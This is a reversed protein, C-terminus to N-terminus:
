LHNQFIKMSPFRPKSMWWMWIKMIKEITHAIAHTIWTLKKFFRNMDKAIDRVAMKCEPITRKVQNKTMCSYVKHRTDKEITEKKLLHDRIIRTYNNYFVEGKNRQTNGQPSM